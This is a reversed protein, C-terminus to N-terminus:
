GPPEHIRSFVSPNTQSIDQDSFSSEQLWTHARLGRFWKRGGYFLANLTFWKICGHEELFGNIDEGEWSIIIINCIFLTQFLLSFDHQCYLLFMFLLLLIVSLLKQRSFSSFIHRLFLPYPRGISITRTSIFHCSSGGTSFLTMIFPPVCHMVCPPM